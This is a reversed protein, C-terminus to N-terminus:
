FRIGIGYYPEWGDLIVNNPNKGISNPLEGNESKWDVLDSEYYWKRVPKGVNWNYFCGFKLIVFISKSIHRELSVSFDLPCYNKFYHESYTKKEENLKAYIIKEGNFLNNSKSLYKLKLGFDSEFLLRNKHHNSKLILGYQFSIFDLLLYNETLYSTGGLSIGGFSSFVKDYSFFSMKALIPFSIIYNKKNSLFFIDSIVPAFSMLLRQLINTSFYGSSVESQYDIIDPYLYWLFLRNFRMKCKNSSVNYVKSLNILVNYQNEFKRKIFYARKLTIRGKGKVVIELESNKYGTILEAGFLYDNDLVDNIKTIQDGEKLNAKEAPSDPLVESILFKYSNDYRTGEEKFKIGIGYLDNHNKLSEKHKIFYDILLTNNPEILKKLTEERILPLKLYNSKKIFDFEESSIYGIDYYDPDNRYIGRLTEDKEFINRIVLQTKDEKTFNFDISKTEEIDITQNKLIYGKESCDAIIKYKGTLLKYNNITKGSYITEDNQLDILKYNTESINSSVSLYGYNAKFVSDIYILAGKGEKEGM